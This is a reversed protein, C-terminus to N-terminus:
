SRGCSPRKLVPPMHRSSARCSTFARRMWSFWRAGSSKRKMCCDPGRRRGGRKIAQEDRQSARRIPMQPTWRLRKLLRSVHGKNYTIGLEEEIVKAVRGCTWLQGRFGYAEPGHWLFEPIMQLQTPSLAAPHGASRHGLLAQLGSRDASVCWHSVSVESVDLAQAIRRQFWGQRKLRLAQFRRWQRWDKLTGETAEM